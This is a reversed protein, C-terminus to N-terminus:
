KMLQRIREIEEGIIMDGRDYHALEPAVNSDIKKGMRERGKQKSARRKEIEEESPKGESGKIFPKSKSIGSFFNHLTGSLKKFLQARKKEDTYNGKGERTIIYLQKFLKKIQEYTPNNKCSKNLLSFLKFLDAFFSSTQNEWGQPLQQKKGIDRRKPAELL